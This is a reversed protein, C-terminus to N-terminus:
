SCTKNIGLMVCAIILMYYVVHEDKYISVLFTVVKLDRCRCHSIDAGTLLINM